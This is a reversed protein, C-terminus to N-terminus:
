TNKKWPHNITRECVVNSLTTVYIIAKKKNMFFDCFVPNKLNTNSRLPVLVHLLIPRSLLLM